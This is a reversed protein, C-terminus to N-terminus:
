LGEAEEEIEARWRELRRAEDAAKMWRAGEVFVVLVCLVAMLGVNGELALGVLPIAAAPTVGLAMWLLHRSQEKRLRRLREELDAVEARLAPPLEREVLPVPGDEGGGLIGASELVARAPEEVEEAVLLSAGALGGLYSVGGAVNDSVLRCPLGAEDLYGRALEAEWYHQFHAIRVEPM